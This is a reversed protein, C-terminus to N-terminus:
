RTNHLLFTVKNAWDPDTVFGQVAQKDSSTLV